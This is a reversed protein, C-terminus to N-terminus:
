PCIGSAGLCYPKSKGLRVSEVLRAEGRNLKVAAVSQWQGRYQFYFHRKIRIRYHWGLKDKLYRMLERDAFGRDALLVVKLDGPLLRHAQRLVSQIVSLRVTSSAQPVIRWAIPITRGRYVVGLWVICFRNWVLTTDLSLYLRREGWGLLAQRLLAQYVGVLNIRHNSLWRRFRRQHSQAYVARSQTYVGWASLHVRESHIIGIMMWCLTQVHRVDLWKVDSQRLFEMLADYLRSTPKM